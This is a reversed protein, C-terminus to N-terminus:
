NQIGHIMKKVKDINKHGPKDEVGSNIDIGVFAPHGIKKILTIDEYGIGGSLIFQRDFYYNNLIAWDFKKGSGGYEETYTDFLFYTSSDIYNRLLEFDFGDRIRFAKIVPIVKNVNNCFNASEDGHLQIYDLGYEFATIAIEYYSPDVFVGVKKVGALKKLFGKLETDQGVYRKSQNYFILGIMDPQLTVVNEINEKLTLGCIKVQM